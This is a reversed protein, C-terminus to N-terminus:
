ARAHTELKVQLAVSESLENSRERAPTGGLLNLLIVRPELLPEFGAALLFRPATERPACQIPDDSTGARFSIWCQALADGLTSATTHFGKPLSLGCCVAAAVLSM